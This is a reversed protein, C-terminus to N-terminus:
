YLTEIAKAHIDCAVSRKLKLTATLEGGKESFDGPVVVYKQVKQANSVAHKENLEDLGKQIYKQWKSGKTAVEAIAGADTTADSVALADGMLRGTSLGTEVDLVTKLTLVVVNYKRQDGVMMVNSLAPCLEKLKDEIPVPAINEGGATIILEKIRGTIHLLGADDLLGVDGSHLWGDDDIAEATKKDDKMYGMMIHRGRYCIEGESPKDRGAVHDIRIEAPGLRPGVTGTYHAMGTSCTTAGTCESMGYVDLLDIDLSAFYNSVEVPMPAAATLCAVACDLGLKKKVAKLLVAGLLASVTV